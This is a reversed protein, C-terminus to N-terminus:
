KDRRNLKQLQRTIDELENLLVDSDITREDFNAQNIGRAIQNLNNGIKALAKLGEIDFNNERVPLNMLSYRMIDSFKQNTQTCYDQLDERIAKPLKFTIVGDFPTKNNEAKQIDKRVQKIKTKTIRKKM